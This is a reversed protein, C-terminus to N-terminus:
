WNTQKFNKYFIGGNTLNRFIPDLIRAAGDVCDIPSKLHYSNPQEITNWGTDVSVMVINQQKFDSASTRTMMNLAAKGMNTHVHDTTKGTRAFCGEMSSVNIIWSFKKYKKALLPKLQGSIYMPAVCNIAYLEMAEYASVEELKQTWSNKTRLDIQQEDKDFANKPFFQQKDIPGAVDIIDQLFDDKIMIKTKSFNEINEGSESIYDIADLAADFKGYDDEYNGIIRKINTNVPTDEQLMHQYFESPRRITQAANHILYDISNYKSKIEETFNYIQDFKKLNVQYIELNAIWIEHDNERKFRNLANNAFRTTIIVKVNCRLLQLATFYGIKIRGGTVIAVKGSLNKTFIRREYNIMGCMNCMMEYFPHPNGNPSMCMYCRQYDSKIIKGTTHNTKKTCLNDYKSIRYCSSIIKKLKINHQVDINDNDFLYKSITDLKDSLDDLNIFNM